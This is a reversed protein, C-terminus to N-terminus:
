GIMRLPVEIQIKNLEAKQEDCVIWDSFRKELLWQGPKGNRVKELQVNWRSFGVGPINNNSAASTIRWRSVSAGAINKANNRLLLATVKSQETALQFRRSENFSLEKIESIVVSVGECKLVEETAQLIDKPKQLQIFLMKDPEIGLATLAPPFILAHASIWIGVGTKKMLAGAIGAMFACSASSDEPRSCMFEHVAGTPFRKNPFAASVPAPLIDDAPECAPKFGQMQLITQRLRAITDTAHLSM